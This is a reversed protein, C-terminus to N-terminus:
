RKELEKTYYLVNKKNRETKLISRKFLGKQSAMDCIEYTKIEDRYYNSPMYTYNFYVKEPKLEYDQILLLLMKKQDDNYGSYNDPFSTKNFTKVREYFEKKQTDSYKNFNTPLLTKVNLCNLCNLDITYIAKKIFESETQLRYEYNIIVETYIKNDASLIYIIRKEIYHIYQIFEHFLTEILDEDNQSLGIDTIAIISASKEYFANAVGTNEERIKVSPFNDINKIILKPYKETTENFKIKARKNLEAVLKKIRNLDDSKSAGDDGDEFWNCGLDFDHCEDWQYKLLESDSAYDMLNPTQGQDQVFENENSFTHKLRFAGHGLEHAMTRTLETISQNAAYIFGFQRNFPMHGKIDSHTTNEKIFFLYLAKINITEQNKYATILADQADNYNM